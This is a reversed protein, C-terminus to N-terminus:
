ATQELLEIRNGFQAEIFIRRIGPLDEAETVRLGAAILADRMADLDSVELAPHAKRAPRFEPDVGLHVQVPGAGFWRGGRGALADPKEVEDLGLLDRYFAPAQAEAGAAMALQIHNIRLARLPPASM